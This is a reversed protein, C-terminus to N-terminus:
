QITKCIENDIRIASFDRFYHLSHLKQCIILIHEKLQGIETFEPHSKFISVPFPMADKWMEGLAASLPNM